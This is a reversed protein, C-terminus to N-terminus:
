RSEKGAFRMARYEPMTGPPLPQAGPQEVEAVTM